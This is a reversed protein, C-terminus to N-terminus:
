ILANAVDDAYPDDTTITPEAATKAILHRSHRHDNERLTVAATPSTIRVHVFGAFSLHTHM